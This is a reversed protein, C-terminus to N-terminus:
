KTGTAAKYQELLKQVEIDGDKVKKVVAEVKEQVKKANPETTSFTITVVGEKIGYIYNDGEYKGDNIIGFVQVLAESMDVNGSAALNTKYTEFATASANAGISVAGKEKTAEYGGSTAANATSMVVKAGQDIFTKAQEKMKNVDTFDGTYATKVEIGKDVYYVGTAYGQVTTTIANIATGGIGAVSKSGLEQAIYGAAVGMLFGQEVGDALVGAINAGNGILATRDSSTVLFKTDPYNAAAAKVADLLQTGHAIIVNFGDKAYDNVVQNYQAAQVNEAYATDVGEELGYEKQIKVLGEYGKQNWGNDNKAGTLVLAVKLDSKNSEEETSGCAVAVFGLFLVMIFILTKKM